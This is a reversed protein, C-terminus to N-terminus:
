LIYWSVCLAIVQGPIGLALTETQLCHCGPLCVAGAQHCTSGPPMLCNCPAFIHASNDESKIGIAILWLIYTM